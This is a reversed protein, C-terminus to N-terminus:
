SKEEANIEEKEVLPLTVTFISGENVKSKVTVKGGLAVALRRVIALGLGTGGYSRRSSSDVQRFEEFIIDQMHAPIGIGTDTARIILNNQERTVDISVSGQHTFKIGNSCLNTIIKILADEDLMIHKPIDEAVSYTFAIKKEKALVGLQEHIRRIVQRISLPVPHFSMRGAQIRSIDLIDNILNLLRESNTEIRQVQFAQPETLEGDMLLVGSFGLIASLPTRLEHSMVALFEDKLRSAELVKENALQLEQNKQNIEDIRTKLREAMTNFGASLQGIEDRSRIKSRIDLAGAGFQSVINRLSVIPHAIQRSLLLSILISILIAIVLGLFITQEAQSIPAFAENTPREVLLVWNPGVIPLASGIVDGGIPSEYYYVDLPTNRLASAFSLSDALNYRADVVAADRHVMVNGRRDLLMAYGTQGLQLDRIVDWTTELDIIAGVVGIFSGDNDYIPVSLSIEPTRNIVRVNSFYIEGREPRFFIEDERRNIFTEAEIPIGNIIGGIENGDIDMLWISKYITKDTQSSIVYNGIYQNLESQSLELGFGGQGIASLVNVIDQVFSTVQESVILTVETQRAEVEETVLQTTARYNILSVVGIPISAVVILVLLLRFQLRRFITMM